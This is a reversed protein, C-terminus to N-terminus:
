IIASDIHILTPTNMSLPIWLIYKANSLWGSDRAVGVGGKSIGEDAFTNNYYLNIHVEHTDDTGTLLGSQFVDYPFLLKEYHNRLCAPVSKAEFYGM